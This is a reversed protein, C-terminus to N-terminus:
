PGSHSCRRSSVERFYEVFIFWVDFFMFSFQIVAFVRFLVPRWAAFDEYSISLRWSLLGCMNGELYKVILSLVCVLSVQLKDVDFM